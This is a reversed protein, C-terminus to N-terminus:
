FPLEDNNKAFMYDITDKTELDLDNNSSERSICERIEDFISLYKNNIVEYMDLGILSLGHVYNM